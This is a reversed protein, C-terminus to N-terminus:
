IVPLRLLNAERRDAAGIAVAPGVDASIRFEKPQPDRRHLVVGIGFQAFRRYVSQLLDAFRFWLSRKRTACFGRNDRFVRSLARLAQCLVREAQEGECVLVMMVSGVERRVNRFADAADATAAEVRM